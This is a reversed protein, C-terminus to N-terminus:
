QWCPPQKRFHPPATMMISFYCHPGSRRWFLHCTLQTWFSPASHVASSSSSDHDPPLMMFGRLSQQSTNMTFAHCVVKSHHATRHSPSLLPSVLPIFTDRQYGSHHCHSILYWWWWWLDHTGMFLLLILSWLFHRTRDPLYFRIFCDFDDRQCQLVLSQNGFTLWAVLLLCEVKFIDAVQM